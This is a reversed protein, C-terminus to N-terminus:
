VPDGGERGDAGEWQVGGAYAEEWSSECEWFVTSHFSPVAFSFGEWVDVEEGRGEGTRDKGSRSSSPGLLPAGAPLSLLHRVRAQLYMYTNILDRLRM